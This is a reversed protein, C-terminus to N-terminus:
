AWFMIHFPDFRLQVTTCVFHGICSIRGMGKVPRDSIRMLIEVQDRGNKLTIIQKFQLSITIEFSPTWWFPL